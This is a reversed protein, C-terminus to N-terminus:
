RWCCPLRPATCSAAERGPRGPGRSLRTVCVGFNETSPLVSSVQEMGNQRPWAVGGRGLAVRAVGGLSLFVKEWTLCCAPHRMARRPPCQGPLRPPCAPGSGRVREQGPSAAARRAASRRRRRRGERPARPVGQRPGAWRMQREGTSRAVGFIDDGDDRWPGALARPRRTM